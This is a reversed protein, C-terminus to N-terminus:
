EGSNFFYTVSIKKFFPALESNPYAQNINKLFFDYEELSKCALGLRKSFDIANYIASTANDNDFNSLKNIFINLPIEKFEKDDYEFIKGNQLDYIMTSLFRAKYDIKYINEVMSKPMRFLKFEFNDTIQPPTIFEKRGADITGEFPGTNKIYSNESNELYFNPNTTGNNSLIVAKIAPNLNELEYKQSIHDLNKLDKNKDLIIDIKFKPHPKKEGITTIGFVLKSELKIRECSEYFNYIPKQGVRDELNKFFTEWLFGNLSISNKRIYIKKGFIKNNVSWVLNSSIDYLLHSIFAYWDERSYSLLDFFSIFLNFALKLNLYTFTTLILVIRKLIFSIFANYIFMANFQKKNKDGIFFNLINYFYLFSYNLPTDIFIIKLYILIDNKLFSFKHENKIIFESNINKYKIYFYKYLFLISLYFINLIFVIFSISVYMFVLFIFFILLFFRVINTIRSSVNKFLNIIELLHLKFITFFDNNQM